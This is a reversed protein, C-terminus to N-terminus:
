PSEGLYPNDHQIKRYFRQEWDAQLIHNIMVHLPNKVKKGSRERNTQSICLRLDGGGCDTIVTWNKRNDLKFHLCNKSRSSLSSRGGGRLDLRIDATQSQYLKIDM